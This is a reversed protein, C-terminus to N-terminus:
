LGQSFLTTIMAFPLTVCGIVDRLTPFDSEDHDHHLPIGGIEAIHNTTCGIHSCLDRYTMVDYMYDRARVIYSFLSLKCPMSQSRLHSRGHSLFVFNEAMIQLIHTHFNLGAGVSNKRAIVRNQM